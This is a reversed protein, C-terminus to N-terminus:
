QNIDFDGASIHSPELGDMPVVYLSGSLQPKKTDL